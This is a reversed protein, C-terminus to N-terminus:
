LLSAPRRCRACLVRMRDGRGDLHIKDGTARGLGLKALHVLTLTPSAFAGTRLKEAVWALHDACGIAAGCGECLVLDKEVADRISERDYTTLDYEPEVRIGKGTICWAECQGCQICSDYRILLRRVTGEDRMDIAKGVCVEACTGCGVCDREHFIPRGRAKPPAPSPAGPFPLTAPGAALIRAAELLERVKPKKM